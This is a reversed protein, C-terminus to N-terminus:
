IMSSLLLGCTNKESFAYGLLSRVGARGRGQSYWASRLPPLPVVVRGWRNFRQSGESRM